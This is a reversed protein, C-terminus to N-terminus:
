YPCLPTNTTHDLAIGDRLGNWVARAKKFRGRVCFYSMWGVYKALHYLWAPLSYFLDGHRRLLFLQNRAHLYFVTPSLTGESSKQKSSANGEHFIISQPALYLRFGAKRIRLSWDVDEFYAFFAPAMSGVKDIVDRPLLMCCGTAWDLEENDRTLSSLPLRDGNTKASGLANISGGASWILRPDEMLLILPQVIGANPKAAATELLKDLFDPKVKTDNNLLLVYDCGQNMAFAIGVNNGGTFGVNEENQILEISPFAEKLRAGSDDESHNDVLIVQYNTYTLEALSKLCDLSHQYGNWNLLIIAVSSNSVSPM